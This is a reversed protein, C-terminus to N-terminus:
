LEEDIQQELRAQLDTVLLSRAGALVSATLEGAAVRSPALSLREAVLSALEAGGALGAPGGLVIRPPALLALVPQLVVAVRDAFAALVRPDACLRDLVDASGGRSPPEGALSLVGPAGTLDTFDAVGPYRAAVSAPVELYGLEGAGGGFGRHLVGGLFVGAGIGDGLWLYVFDGTVAGAARVALAALNVDNEITVDLGTATAILTRAGQLPWGPLTDAYSLEDRPADVAAQVGITVASVTDHAVGAAACAAHVAATVDGAPSRDLGATPVDVVPHQGDTPDVLVAQLRDALISVAVGTLTDRRVGYAVANPGRAGTIEGVPGILGVRELRAIMQGATPKSLGSLEGLQTRSLPGHELLLRFATRDNQARLWTPTGKM